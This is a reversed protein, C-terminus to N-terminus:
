DDVTARLDLVAQDINMPCRRVCVTRSDSGAWIAVYLRSRYDQRIAGLLEQAHRTNGTNVRRRQAPRDCRTSEHHLNM